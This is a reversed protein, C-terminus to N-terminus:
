PAEASLPASQATMEPIRASWAVRRLVQDEARSLTEPVSTPALMAVADMEMSGKLASLRPAVVKAM